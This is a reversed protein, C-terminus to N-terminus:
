RRLVLTGAIVDHLAQKRETFAAMIYGILLIVRSLYKAFHRGTAQDFSIRQGNLNTVKLGLAMKGPTAQRNSSLFYAEYCWSLLVSIVVTIGVFPAHRSPGFSPPRSM